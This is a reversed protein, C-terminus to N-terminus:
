VGRYDLVLNGVGDVRCRWGPALYTTAVQETILAPGDLVQGAALRERAWVTAESGIGYLTAQGMAEGEQRPAPALSLALPPATAALRVNVLEVPLDQRHGFRSHHALHFAASAGAV